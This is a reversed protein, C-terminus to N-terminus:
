WNNNGRSLSSHKKIWKPLVMVGIFLYPFYSILRWIIALGALLLASSSLDVLLESFAYEAIGSAGPTPSVLLFLWMVLQKALIFIHKTLSIPLFAAIICNVVFYRSLWSGCTAIFSKVWFGKREHKLETSAQEISKATNLAKVKRKRLIPLSFILNVIKLVIKPQFFLATFILICILLMVSYGTWFAVHLSSEGVSKTPFLLDFQLFILLFPLLLIYFLNDLFATIVVIATARGIEIKEKNLIFMAVASGGVIGPTLASAFEWLLITIMSRYWSLQSKTLIRIRIMYFLDRGVMMFVALCLWFFTNETWDISQIVHALDDKIYDGKRSQAPVFEHVNTLDPTATTGIWHYKGTGKEVPIFRTQNLTRLLFFVAIGVGFLTILFIKWANFFSKEQKM